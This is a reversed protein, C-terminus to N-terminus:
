VAAGEAARLREYMEVLWRISAREDDLITRLLEKSQQDEQIQDIMGAIPSLFEEPESFLAAIVKLKDLDSRETSAFFPLDRERREPAVTAEAVGGLAILREKLVRAHSAERGQITSLGGRLGEHRSAKMWALLYEAAFGESCRYADLLHLVRERETPDSKGQYGGYIYRRPATPGEPAKKPEM